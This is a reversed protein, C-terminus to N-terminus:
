DNRTGHINLGDELARYDYPDAILGANLRAKQDDYESDTVRRRGGLFVAKGGPVGYYKAAEQLKNIAHMDGRRAPINMVNGDGDEVRRGDDTHWVYMGYEHDNVIGVKSKM